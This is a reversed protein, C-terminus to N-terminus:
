APRVARLIIHRNSFTAAETGANEPLLWDKAGPSADQLRRQLEAITEPTNDQIQAWELLNHRKVFPETHELRLGAAQIFQDWESARLSRNHSPDRLQEFDNVYTDVAPDESVVQDQLVFVGGPKLVRAVESVFQGINPFHHPAIRCTVFDFRNDEFPLNEADAQRFDVNEIGHATINKEAAALMASTLDSAIVHKVLPAFTRATHGGGTAIDLMEWDPQANAIAVLRQLDTGEAHVKSQVYREAFRGFREQSHQKPDTTM